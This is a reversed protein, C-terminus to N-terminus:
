RRDDLSRWARYKHIEDFVMKRRLDTELQTALYRRRLRM